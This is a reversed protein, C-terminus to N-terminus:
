PQSLVERREHELATPPIPLVTTPESVITEKVLQQELAIKRNMLVDTNLWAIFAALLCVGAVFLWLSENFVVQFIQRDSVEEPPSLWLNGNTFYLHAFKLTAGVAILFFVWHTIRSVILLWNTSRLDDAIGLVFAEVMGRRPRIETNM